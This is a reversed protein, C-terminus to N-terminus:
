PPVRDAAPNIRAEYGPHLASAASARVLRAIRPEPHVVRATGANHSRRAYLVRTSREMRAVAATCRWLVLCQHMAAKRRLPMWQLRVFIGPLVFSIPSMVRDINKPKAAM